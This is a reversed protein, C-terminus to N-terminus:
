EMAAEVLEARLQELRADIAVAGPIARLEAHPIHPRTQLVAARVRVRAKLLEDYEAALTVLIELTWDQTSRQEIGLHEGLLSHLARQADRDLGMRMEFGDEGTFMPSPLPWLWGLQLGGDAPDQNPRLEISAKTM